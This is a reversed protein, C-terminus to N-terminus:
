ERTEITTTRESGGNPQEIATARAPLREVAISVEYSDNRGADSLSTFYGPLNRLPLHHGVVATVEDATDHFTIDELTATRYSGGVFFEGRIRIQETAKGTHIDIEPDGLHPDNARTEWADFRVATIPGPTGTWERYGFFGGGVAAAGLGALLHRRQM